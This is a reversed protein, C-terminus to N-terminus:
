SLGRLVTKSAADSFAKAVTDKIKPDLAKQVEGTRGGNEIAYACLRGSGELSGSLKPFSELHRKM